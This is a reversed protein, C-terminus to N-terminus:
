CTIQMLIVLIQGILMTLCFIFWKKNIDFDVLLKNLNNKKYNEAFKINDKIVDIRFDFIITTVAICILFIIDRLM